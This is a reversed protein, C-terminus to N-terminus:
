VQLFAALEDPKVGAAKALADIRGTPWPLGGIMAMVSIVDGGELQYMGTFV